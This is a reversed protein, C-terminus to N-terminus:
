QIDPNNADKVGSLDMEDHPPIPKPNLGIGDRYSAGNSKGLAFGRSELDAGFRRGSIPHIGNSDAWTSYASYLDSTRM